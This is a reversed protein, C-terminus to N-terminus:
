KSVIFGAGLMVLLLVFGVIPVGHPQLAPDTVFDRFPAVFGHALCLLIALLVVGVESPHFDSPDRTNSSMFVVILALLSLTVPILPNHYMLDILWGAVGTQVASLFTFLALAVGAMWNVSAFAHAPNWSNSHAM